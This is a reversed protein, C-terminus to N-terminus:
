ISRALLNSQGNQYGSEHIHTNGGQLARAVGIDANSFCACVLSFHIKVDSVLVSLVICCCLKFYLPTQGALLVIHNNLALNM